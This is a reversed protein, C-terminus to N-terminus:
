CTDFDAGPDGRVTGSNYRLGTFVASITGQLDARAWFGVSPVALLEKGRWFSPVLHLAPRPEPPGQGAAQARRRRRERARAGGPEGELGDAIEIAFRGDWLARAGGALTM